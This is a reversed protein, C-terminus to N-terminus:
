IKHPTRLGSASSGQRAEIQFELGATISQSGGNAHTTLRFGWQKSDDGDKMKTLSILRVNNSDSVEIEADAAARIGSWGRAGRSVDKGAHHIVLATARTAETITRLNRLANGRRQDRPKKPGESPTPDYPM